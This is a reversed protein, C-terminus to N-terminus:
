YITGMYNGESDRLTVDYPTFVRFSKKGKYKHGFRNYELMELQDM